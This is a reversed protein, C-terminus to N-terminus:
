SEELDDLEFEIYALNHLLKPDSDNLVLANGFSYYADSFNDLELYVVRLNFWAQFNTPVIVLAEKL